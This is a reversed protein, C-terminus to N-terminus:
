LTEPEDYRKPDKKKKKTSDDSLKKTKKVERNGRRKPM